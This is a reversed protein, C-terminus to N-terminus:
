LAIAKLTIGNKRPAERRMEPKFSAAIIQHGEVFDLLVDALLNHRGIGPVFQNRRAPHVSRVLEKLQCLASTNDKLSVFM